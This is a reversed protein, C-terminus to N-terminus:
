RGEESEPWPLAVKYHFAEALDEKRVIERQDLDAITRALGLMSYFSRASLSSRDAMRTVFRMLERDVGSPIGSESTRIRGNHFLNGSKARSKQMEWATQVKTRLADWTLQREPDKDSGLLSDSKVRTLPVILDFRDMLPGSIRSLHRRVAGDPCRCRDGAELLMGCRCPNCAAVLLFEAPLSVKWGARALEIQGSELPERLADLARTGMETVEDLFLVGRHALSCEGPVPVSGGGILASVTVSHHPHRFPREPGNDQSSGPRGAASRIRMLDLYEQQDPPPLLYPLSSALMTKGCGPAGMLLLPHWGAAAILCARLGESQGVPRRPWSGSRPLVRKSPDPAAPKRRGRIGSLRHVAEKLNAVPLYEIRSVLRAEEEGEQPGIIMEVGAEQLALVRGLMGRVPKVRGDLSLEGLYAAKPDHLPRVVQTSAALVALALPLDFASGQKPLSVPAYSAIVRGKPFHYGSNTIAARVRDRSERIAPDGRGSIDFQPIGPLITVEIEVPVGDLGTLACSLLQHYYGTRM